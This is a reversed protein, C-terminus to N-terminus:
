VDEPYVVDIERLNISYDENKGVGDGDFYYGGFGIEQFLKELRHYGNSADFGVEPIIRVLRGKEKNAYYKAEEVINMADIKM